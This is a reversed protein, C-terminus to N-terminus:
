AAGNSSKYTGAIGEDAFHLLLKWGAARFSLANSAPPSHAFAPEEPIEEIHLIYDQSHDCRLMNVIM